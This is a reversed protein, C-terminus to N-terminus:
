CGGRRAAGTRAAWGGGRSRGAALGALWCALGLLFSGPVAGFGGLRLGPGPDGGPLAGALYASVALLLGSVCGLAVTARPRRPQRSPQRSPQQSPSCWDIIGRDKIAVM